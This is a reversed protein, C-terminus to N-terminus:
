KTQKVTCNWYVGVNLAASGDARNKLAVTFTSADMATVSAIINASKPIVVAFGPMAQLKHSITGGDSIIAEGSASDSDTKLIRLFDALIKQNDELFRRAVPDIIEGPVKPLVLSDYKSM